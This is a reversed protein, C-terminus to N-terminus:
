RWMRLIKRYFMQLSDIFDAEFFPYFSQKAPSKGEQQFIASRQLFFSLKNLWKMSWDAVAIFIATFM